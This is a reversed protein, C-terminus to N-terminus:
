NWCGFVYKEDPLKFSTGEDYLSQDRVLLAEHLARSPTCVKAEAQIFNSGTDKNTNSIVFDL